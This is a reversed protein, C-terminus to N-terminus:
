LFCPVAGLLQLAKVTGVAGIEVLPDAAREQDLHVAMQGGHSLFRGGVEYAGPRRDTGLGCGGGRAREFSSLMMYVSGVMATGAAAPTAM